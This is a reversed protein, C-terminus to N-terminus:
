KKLKHSNLINKGTREDMQMAVTKIGIGIFLGLVLCILMMLITSLKAMMIEKYSM